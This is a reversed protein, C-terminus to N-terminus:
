AGLTRLMSLVILHDRCDCVQLKIPTRNLKHQQLAKRTLEWALEMTIPLNSGEHPVPDTALIEKNFQAEVVLSCDARQPFNRGPSLDFALCLLIKLSLLKFKGSVISVVILVKQEMEGRLAQKEVQM